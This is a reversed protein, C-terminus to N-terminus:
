FGESHDCGSGGALRRRDLHFVASLPLCTRLLRKDAILPRHSNRFGGSLEEHSASDPSDFHWDMVAEKWVFVPRELTLDIADVSVPIASKKLLSYIGVVNDDTEVYIRFCNELVSGPIKLSKVDAQGSHFFLLRKKEDDLGM